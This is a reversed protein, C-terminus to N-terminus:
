LNARSYFLGAKCFILPPTEPGLRRVATSVVTPRHTAALKGSQFAVTEGLRFIHWPSSDATSDPEISTLRRHHGISLLHFRRTAPPATSLDSLYGHKKRRRKKIFNRHYISAPRYVDGDCRRVWDACVFSLLLATHRAVGIKTELGNEEACVM